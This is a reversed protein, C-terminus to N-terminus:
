MSAMVAQWAAHAVEPHAIDSHAGSIGDGNRIVDSADINYVKSKEFAYTANVDGITIESAIPSVGQLGFAGVGGYKPYAVMVVQRALRAALPYLNGVAGDHTSWTTLIPGSVRGQSVIREFYGPEGMGLTSYSWLSLAGQVLFVSNVPRVLPEWNRGAVAASSVICGFSHGMLHFRVPRATSRQLARLLGAVGTEGVTKARAKMTWFSLQRLPSLLADKIDAIGLTMPEATVDIATNVVDQANWNEIHGSPGATEDSWLDAERLLTDYAHLVDAGLEREGGREVASRVITDIAERAPVSSSISEAFQDVLADVDEDGPSAGGLLGAGGGDGSAPISEEGWPQSPWHVGVLLAKFTPDKARIAQRDVAMKAMEGMWKNCQEIAAPVDGKWGHSAFFVDTIPEADAALLGCLRESEMAGDESRENGSKDFSILYYSLDTGPLNVRM